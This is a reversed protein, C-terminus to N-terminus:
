EIIEGEYIGWLYKREIWGTIGQSSGRCWAENCEKLYLIAGPEIRAVKSSDSEHSRKLWITGGAIDPEEILSTRQASLLGKYVWGNYGDKDQIKRWHDFERIIEVPYGQQQYVLKVPYQKGPGARLFVKDASLSAFRPVEAAHSITALTLLPILALFFRIM